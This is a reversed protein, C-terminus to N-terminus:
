FDDLAGVLNSRWYSADSIYGKHGALIRPSFRLVNGLDHAKESVTDLGNYQGTLNAYSINHLSAPCNQQLLCDAPFRCCDRSTETESADASRLLSEIASLLAGVERPASHVPM